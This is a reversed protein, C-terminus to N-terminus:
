KLVVQLNSTDIAFTKGPPAPPLSKIYGGPILEELSAPVRRQEASFKRVAQTLEALVNSIATVDATEVDSKLAPPTASPPTSNKGCGIWLLSISFGICTFWRM